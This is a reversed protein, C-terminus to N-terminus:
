CHPPGYLSRDTHATVVITVVAASSSVPLLQRVQGGWTVGSTTPTAHQAGTTAATTVIM